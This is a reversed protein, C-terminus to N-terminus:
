ETDNESDDSDDEDEDDYSSDEGFEADKVVDHVTVPVDSAFRVVFSLNGISSFPVLTYVWSDKVEFSVTVQERSTPPAQQTSFANSL